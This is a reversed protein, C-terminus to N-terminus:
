NIRGVLNGSLMYDRTTGFSHFGASLSFRDTFAKELYVAGLVDKVHKAGITKFDTDYRDKIWEAELIIRDVAKTEFAVGGTVPIVMDDNPDINMLAAEAFISVGNKIIPLNAKLAIYYFGKKWDKVAKRTGEPTICLHFTDRQRAQEALQDTLSTKKSREVPIGGLARMIYGLPWFFWFKKMMFNCSYGQAFTHLQGVIFDWNSTHPALAIIYKDPLTFDTEFKFGWCRYLLWHSLKQIM